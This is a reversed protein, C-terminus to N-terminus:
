LNKDVLYNDMKKQLNRAHLYHEYYYGVGVGGAFLNSPMKFYLFIIYNGNNFVYRFRKLWPGITSKEYLVEKRYPENIEKMFREVKKVVMRPNKFDVISTTEIPQTDIFQTKIFRTFVIFMIGLAIIVCGFFTIIISKLILFNVLIIIIGILITASSVLYIIGKSKKFIENRETKNLIPVKWYRELGYNANQVSRDDPIFSKNIFVQRPIILILYFIMMLIIIFMVSGFLFVLADSFSFNFGAILVFLGLIAYIILSVGILMVKEKSSKEQSIRENVCDTCELNKHVCESCINNFHSPCYYFNEQDKENSYTVGCQDCKYKPINAKM